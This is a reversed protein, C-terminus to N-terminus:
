NEEAGEMKHKMEAKSMAAQEALLHCWPAAITQCCMTGAADYLLCRALLTRRPTRISPALSKLHPARSRRFFSRRRRSRNAADQAPLWSSSCCAIRGMRPWHFGPCVAEEGDQKTLRPSALPPPHPLCARSTAAPRDVAALCLHAWLLARRLHGPQLRDGAHACCERHCGLAKSHDSSLTCVDLPQQPGRALSM